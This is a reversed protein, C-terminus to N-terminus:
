GDALFPYKTLNAYGEYTVSLVDIFLEEDAESANYTYAPASGGTGHQKSTNFTFVVVGCFVVLGVIVGALLAYM